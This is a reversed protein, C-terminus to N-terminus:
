CWHQCVSRLASLCLYVRFDIFEVWPPSRLGPEGGKVHHLMPSAACLSCPTPTLLQRSNGFDFNIRIPIPARLADEPLANLGPLAGRMTIPYDLFAQPHAASQSSALAISSSCELQPCADPRFGLAPPLRASLGIFTVPAHWTRMHYRRHSRLECDNLTSRTRYNAIRAYRGRPFNDLREGCSVKDCM